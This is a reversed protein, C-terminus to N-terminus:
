YLNYTNDTIARPNPNIGRQRRQTGFKLSHRNYSLSNSLLSKSLEKYTQYNKNAQEEYGPIRRLTAYAAYLVIVEDYEQPLPNPQTETIDPLKRLYPVTVNTVQGPVPYFGIRWQTGEKRVYYLTPIGGVNELDYQGIITTYDSPYVPTNTDMKVSQPEAMRQFDDPLDYENVGSQTDFLHFGYNEPLDFSTDQQIKLLARNLNRTLLTDSNVTGKPDVKIEDRVQSLLDLLTTSM